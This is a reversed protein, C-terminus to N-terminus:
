HKIFATARKVNVYEEVSCSYHLAKWAILDSGPKVTVVPRGHKTILLPIQEDTVASMCTGLTDRFKKITYELGIFNIDAKKDFSSIVAVVKGEDTVEYVGITSSFLPDLEQIITYARKYLDKLTITKTRMVNAETYVSLM